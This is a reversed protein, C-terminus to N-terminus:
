LRVTQSSQPLQRSALADQTYIMNAQNTSAYVTTNIFSKRLPIFYKLSNYNPDNIKNEKLVLDRIRDNGVM